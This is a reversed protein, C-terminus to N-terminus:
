ARVGPPWSTRADRRSRAPRRGPRAPWRTGGRAACCGCSWRGKRRASWRVVRGREPRGDAAGPRSREAEGVLGEMRREKVGSM